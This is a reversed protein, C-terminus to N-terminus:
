TTFISSCTAQSIDFRDALDENLLGLRLRVLVLLFQNKEDLKPSIKTATRKYKTSFINKKGRWYVINPLCRQILSFLVKFLAVTQIGTYFKMKADSKIRSWSFIKAGERAKNVDRVIKQSLQGVKEKLQDRGLSLSKIGNVLARILSTKM